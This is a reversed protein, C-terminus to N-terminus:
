ARRRRGGLVVAQPQPEVDNAADDLLEAAGNVDVAARPRARRENDLQGQLHGVSMM